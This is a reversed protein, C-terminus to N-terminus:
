ITMKYEYEKPNILRFFIIGLNQLIAMFVFITGYIVMVDSTITSVYAFIAGTIELGIVTGLNAFSNCIAYYTSDMEPYQQSIEGVVASYGSNRWGATSGLLCGFILLFILPVPILFLLLSISTIIFSSYVALKRSVLDAIRGGILAGAVVGLGVIFTIFAQPQYLNIDEELISLTAGDPRIYGMQILIFLSLFLVIVGDVIANTAAFGYVKWNKAKGFMLKLNKGIKAKNEYPVHRILLILLSFLIMIVGLGIFIFGIRVFSLMIALLPGGAITGVSRFGWCFGQTRGLQSKPCSDLIMGDIATDGMAVGLNIIFGCVMLLLIANAPTLIFPVIIWIIGSYSLPLVIWPKRRGFKKSGFRDSLIGYLFKIAWPMLAISAITAIVDAGITGLLNLLYIPIIVAVISQNIGQTLYNLSFIGIYSSKFEPNKKGM